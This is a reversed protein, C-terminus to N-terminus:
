FFLEFFAPSVIGVDKQREFDTLNGQLDVSKVNASFAHFPAVTEFATAEEERLTARCATAVGRNFGDFVGSFESYVRYIRTEMRVFIILGWRM